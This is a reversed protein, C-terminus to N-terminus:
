VAHVSKSFDRRNIHHFSRQRTCQKNNRLIKGKTRSGVAVDGQIDMLKLQQSGKVM